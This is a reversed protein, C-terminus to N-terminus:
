TIVPPLANPILRDGGKADDLEEFSHSVNSRLVILKAVDMAAGGGVAVIGQARSARSAAAGAEVGAETPNPSLESFLEVSIRQKALSTEIARTLGAAIVGPDTVLLARDSILPKAERGCASASGAGFLIRTPYSWISLSMKKSYLRAVRASVMK